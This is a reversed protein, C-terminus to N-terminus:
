RSGARSAVVKTLPGLRRSPAWVREGGRQMWERFGQNLEELSLQLRERWTSSRKKRKSMLDDWAPDGVLSGNQKEDLVYKDVGAYDIKAFEVVSKPPDAKMSQVM